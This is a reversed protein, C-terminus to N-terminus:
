CVENANSDVNRFTVVDSTIELQYLQRTCNANAPGLRSTDYGASRGSCDTSLNSATVVMWCMALSIFASFPLM